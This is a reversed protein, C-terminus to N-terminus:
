LLIHLVTYYYVDVYQIRGPIDAQLILGRLGLDCIKLYSHIRFQFMTM